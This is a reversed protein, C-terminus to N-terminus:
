RRFWKAIREIAQLINPSAEILYLISIATFGHEVAVDFLVVSLLIVGCIGQLWRNGVLSDLGKRLATLMTAKM